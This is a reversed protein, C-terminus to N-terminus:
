NIPALQQLMPSQNARGGFRYDAWYRQSDNGSAIFYKMGVKRGM